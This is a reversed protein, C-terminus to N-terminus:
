QGEKAKEKAKEKEEKERKRRKICEGGHKKGCDPCKPRSKNSQCDPCQSKIKDEDRKRKKNTKDAINTNASAAPPASNATPKKPLDPHSVLHAELARKVEDAEPFENLAEYKALPIDFLPKFKGMEHIYRWALYKPQFVKGKLTVEIKAHQTKLANLLTQPNPYNAITMEAFKALEKSLEPVGARHYNNYFETWLTAPDEKNTHQHWLDKSTADMIMNIAKKLLRRQGEYGEIQVKIEQIREKCAEDSKIYTGNRNKQGFQQEKARLTAVSSPRNRSTYFPDPRPVLTEDGTVLDWCGVTELNSRMIEAWESYNEKGKLIPCKALNSSLIDNSSAM